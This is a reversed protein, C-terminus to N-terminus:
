KKLLDDIPAPLSIAFGQLYDVGIESLKCIIEENEVYEAITKKGQLQGIENVSKVIAFDIPDHAIDKVFMGDIKVFDVPLNKLHAYSAYGSGFDDLSFKCGFQKVEDIFESATQLDNMAATETIEFCISGKQLKFKDFQQKIFKAMSNDTITQASLNISLVLPYSFSSQHRSLWGFATKIVWQDLTTALGYREATPLFKGPLIVEGSDAILRVLLEYHIETQSTDTAKIQQQYLHMRNNEFAEVLLNVISSEDRKRASKADYIQVRNRGGEKATYCAADAESLLNDATETSDSFPVLGISVGIDFVQEEWFFRFSEISSRLKNAVKFGVEKTCNELLIAFEDGGLRAFTDRQRLKSLMMRTVQKLLEDGAAHGASDNVIKFRDLDMFLLINDCGTESSRTVAQNLRRDFERRNLLGTLADHNAQFQIKNVHARSQSVDHFVLVAGIIFGEANRIPAASDEIPIEMGYRHILVTEAGLEVVEKKELCKIVPDDVKKGTKENVVMFVQSIHRGIADNEPWGSLREAVPNMSNIEGDVDTTIVGDGISSLTVMAREHEEMLKQEALVLESVDSISAIVKNGDSHDLPSLEIEVPFERGNKKLGLLNRGKGMIRTQPDSLFATRHKDHFHRIKEPLLINMSRNLLENKNYGFIGEARDNIQEINGQNDIVIMGYPASMFTKHLDQERRELELTRQEVKQELEENSVTLEKEALLRSSEGSWLRWLFLLLVNFLIVFIFGARSELNSKYASFLDSNPIALISWGTGPVLQKFLVTQQSKETLFKGHWTSTFVGKASLEIQNPRDNNVVLLSQGPIQAKKLLEFLQSIKFSVFFLPSEVGNSISVMVDFHYNAPSEGHMITEYNNGASLAFKKIGIKCEAGLKLVKEELLPMGQFDAILYTFHDPLRNTVLSTLLELNEEDVPFEAIDILLQKNYEVLAFVTQRRQAVLQSLNHVTGKVAGTALDQQAKYFNASEFHVFWGLM